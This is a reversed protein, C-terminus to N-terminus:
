VRAPTDHVLLAVVVPDGPNVARHLHPVPPAQENAPVRIARSFCRTCWAYVVSPIQGTTASHLWGLSKAELILIQGKQSCQAVVNTPNHSRLALTEIGDPTLSKCHRTSRGSSALTLLVVM